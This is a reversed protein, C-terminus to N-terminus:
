ARAHSDQGVVKLSWLRGPEPEYITNKTEIRGTRIDYAVLRSTRSMDDQYAEGPIHDQTKVLFARDAVIAAEGIYHVTPKSESTMFSEQNPAATNM